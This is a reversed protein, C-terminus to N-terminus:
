TYVNQYFHTYHIHITHKYTFINFFCIKYYLYKKLYSDPTFSRSCKGDLECHATFPPVEFNFNM